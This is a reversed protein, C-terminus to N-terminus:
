EDHLCFHRCATLTENCQPGGNHSVCYQWEAQCQNLCWNGGAYATTTSGGLGLAFMFLALKLKLKM